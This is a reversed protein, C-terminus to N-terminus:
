LSIKQQSVKDMVRTLRSWKEKTRSHFQCNKTGHFKSLINWQDTAVFPHTSKHSFHSRESLIPTYVMIGLYM